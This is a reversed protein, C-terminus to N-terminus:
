KEKKATSAVLKSRKLSNQLDRWPYSKGTQPNKKRVTRFVRAKGIFLVGERFSCRALYAKAVDDKRQGKRFTMVDVGETEAFREISKVFAATMGAVAVTSAIPLGLRNRVFHVFGGETQRMAIYGNLYLRDIGEVELVVQKRIMEAVSQTVM